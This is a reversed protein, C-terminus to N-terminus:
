CGFDTNHNWLPQQDKVEVHDREVVKEVPFLGQDERSQYARSLTRVLFDRIRQRAITPQYQHRHLFSHLLDNRKKDAILDPVPLAM